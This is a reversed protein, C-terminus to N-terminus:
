GGSIFPFINVADKEALLHDPRTVSEGNVMVLVKLKKNGADYLIKEMEDGYIEKLIQILNELSSGSKIVVEETNKNTIKRILYSNYTVTIKM